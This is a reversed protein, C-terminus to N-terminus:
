HLRVLEGTIGKEGSIWRKPLGVDIGVTNRPGYARKTNWEYPNDPIQRLADICSDEPPQGFRRDDCDIRTTSLNFGRNWYTSQISTLTKNQPKSAFLSVDSDQPTNLALSTVLTLPLNYIALLNYIRM